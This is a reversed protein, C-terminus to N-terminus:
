GKLAISKQNLAISKEVSVESYDIGVVRGEKSIQEAFREINRGGGCGIDLIKSDKEIEFHSVGWKAMEEHSKNMRDLIQHGLKGVPKRANKILEKDEIHHGTNVKDNESM